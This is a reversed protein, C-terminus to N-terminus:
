LIFSTEGLLDRIHNHLIEYEDFYHYLKTIWVNEVAADKLMVLQKPKGEHSNVVMAITGPYKKSQIITGTKLDDWRTVLSNALAKYSEDSIKVEKGNELTITKM